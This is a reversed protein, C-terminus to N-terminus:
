FVYGAAFRVVDAVDDPDSEPRVNQYDLKFVLQPIPRFHLGATYIDQVYKENRLYGAPMENQTDLREYRFYPELSARTDSFVLPLVDYAALAYWGLMTEAIAAGGNPAKNLAFNLQAADGVFAQTLLTQITLGWREYEAHVEYLTTLTPPLKRTLSTGGSTFTFSQDQGSNGAYVSGGAMLGDFLDVDFRGVFAWDNVLSESGSQRGGRLGSVSFGRADMGNVAYARYSVRNGLTGFLGAGLERWTSPIIQREVEPRNAGYFFVPEHIENTFGMPILVLGVRANIEDRPMYDLTMFEVSVSGTEGTTGHEFEIESNFVWKDDFKYGVYLVARLADFIDNKSVKAGTSTNEDTVFSRLLIEGYGGISLGKDRFYVKSAAPGLGSFSALERDEPVTAATIAKSLEDALVDVRSEVEDLRESESPEAGAAASSDATTPATEDTAGGAGGQALAGTASTFSTLAVLVAVLGGRRSARGSTRQHRKM